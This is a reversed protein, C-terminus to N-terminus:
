NGGWCDPCLLSFTVWVWCSPRSERNRQKAKYFGSLDTSILLIVGALQDGSLLLGRWCLGWSLGLFVQEVALSMGCDWFCESMIWGLRDFCVSSFDEVGAFIEGVQQCVHLMGPTTFLIGVNLCRWWERDETVSLSKPCTWYLPLDM